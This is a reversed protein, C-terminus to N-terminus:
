NQCVPCYSTGRGGLFIKKIFHGKPCKKKTYVALYKHFGGPGDLHVYNNISTGQHKIALELVRKIQHNLRKIEEQSLEGAKRRPDIKAHYLAEQAYINGIGAIIKQNLLITKINSKKKKLLIEMFKELTFVKELPEIGLKDLEQKLKDQNLLKVYGFKRISNHTLLSGDKFHFSVVIFKQYPKSESEKDKAVYHFHGTMRLHVLLYQNNELELVISKARRYVKKIKVPIITKIKRDVMKYDLIDVNIITKNLVTKNLQCVITEVEPLEPM